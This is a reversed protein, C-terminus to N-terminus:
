EQVQCVASRHFLLEGVENISPPITEEQDNLRDEELFDEWSYVSDRDDHDRSTTQLSNAKSLLFSLLRYKQM